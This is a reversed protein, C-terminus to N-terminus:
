FVNLIINECSLTLITLVNKSCRKNAPDKM